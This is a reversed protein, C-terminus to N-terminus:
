VARHRTGARMYSTPTTGLVRQFARVLTRDSGFGSEVALKKLSIDRGGAALIDRVYYVRKRQILKYPSEPQDEFVRYLMRKSIGLGAAIMDSCLNPDTIHGDVYSQIERLLVLQERLMSSKDACYAKRMSRLTLSVVGSIYQKVGFADLGDVSFIEQVLREFLSVMAQDNSLVSFTMQRLVREPINAMSSSFELGVIHHPGEYFITRPESADVLYLVRPGLVHQGGRTIVMCNGALVSFIKFKPPANDDEVRKYGNRLILSSATRYYARANIGGISGCEALFEEPDCRHRSFEAGEISAVLEQFREFREAPLANHNRVVSAQVLSDDWGLAFFDRNEM